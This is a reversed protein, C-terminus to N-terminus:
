TERRIPAFMLAQQRGVLSTLKYRVLRYHISQQFVYMLEALQRAHHQIQALLVM